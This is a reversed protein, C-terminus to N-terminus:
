KQKRKFMFKYVNSNSGTRSRVHMKMAFFILFIVFSSFLISHLIFYDVKVKFPFRLYKSFWRLLRCFTLINLFDKQFRYWNLDWVEGTEACACVKNLGTQVPRVVFGLLQDCRSFLCM